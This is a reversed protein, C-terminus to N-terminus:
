GVREDIEQQEEKAAAAFDVREYLEALALDTGIAQLPITAPLGEYTSAVFGENTRHYAVVRPQTTDIILYVSLSPITLYADLKETADLRQTSPSTVEAIVVPRDQHTDDASNSDCVVMGDPYYFRTETPMRVRVKTNSDFPQCPKGRLKGFMLGLFTSVITQHLNRAGAMAYVHGRAYERKVPSAEESKLYEDVSVLTLPKASSTSPIVKPAIAATM